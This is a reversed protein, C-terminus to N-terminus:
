LATNKQLVERQTAYVPDWQKILCVQHTRQPTSGRHLYMRPLPLHSTGCCRWGPHRGRSGATTARPRSRRQRCSRPRQVWHGPGGSARRAVWCHGSGAARGVAQECHTVPISVLMCLARCHSHKRISEQIVAATPVPKYGPLTCQTLCLISNCPQTNPM